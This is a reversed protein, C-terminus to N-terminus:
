QPRCLRQRCDSSLQLEVAGGQAAYTRLEERLTGDLPYTITSSRKIDLPSMTGGVGVRVCLDEPNAALNYAVGTTARFAILVNYKNQESDFIYPWGDLMIRSDCTEASQRLFGGRAAALAVLDSNSEFPLLLYGVASVENGQGDRVTTQTQLLRAPSVNLQPMTQCSAMAIISLLLPLSKANM